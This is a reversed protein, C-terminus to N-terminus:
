FCGCVVQLISHFVVVFLLSCVDSEIPRAPEKVRNKKYM